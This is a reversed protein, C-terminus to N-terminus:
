SLGTSAPARHGGPAWPRPSLHRRPPRPRMGESQGGIASEGLVRGDPTHCTRHAGSLPGRVGGPSPRRGPLRPMHLGPGNLAGGGGRQPGGPQERRCCGRANTRRARGKDGFQAGLSRRPVWRAGSCRGPRPRPRAAARARPVWTRWRRRRGGSGPPFRAGGPCPSSWPGSLFAPMGAGWGGVGDERDRLPCSSCHGEPPPLPCPPNPSCPTFEAGTPM